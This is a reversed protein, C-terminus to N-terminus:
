RDVGWALVVMHMEALFRTDLGDVANYGGRPMLLCFGPLKPVRM